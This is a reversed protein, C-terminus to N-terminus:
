LFRKIMHKIENFTIQSFQNSGSLIKTDSLLYNLFKLEISDSKFSSKKYTSLKFGSTYFEEVDNLIFVFILSQFQDSTLKLKNLDQNVLDRDVQQMIMQKYQSYNSLNKIVRLFEVEKYKLDFLKEYKYQEFEHLILIYLTLITEFYNGTDNSYINPILRLYNNASSNSKINRLLQFKNLVKKIKRPNTFKLAIFFDKIKHNMLEGLIADKEEDFYQNILNLINDHEPMTFSIDFIKELYENAKVVNGYKNKVAANVAEKDLGCFFITKEGYTFFLKLASLLNLVNEPECRDLDDIFVINIKPDEGKTVDDEWKRFEIEFKKKLQYFTDEPEEELSEVIKGGDFSLGPVSIRISKSFGRFLKAAIEVLEGLAEDTSDASRYSLYELLSM